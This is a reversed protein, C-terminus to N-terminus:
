RLYRLTPASLNRASRTGKGSSEPNCSLSRRANDGFPEPARFRAKALTAEPEEPLSVSAMATRTLAGGPATNGIADDTAQARRLAHLVENRRPGRSDTGAPISADAMILDVDLTSENSNRWLSMFKWIRCGPTWYWRKRQLQTSAPLAEAGGGAERVQWRLDALANRVRKRFSADASALVATRATSFVESTATTGMNLGGKSSLDQHSTEILRPHRHQIRRRSCYSDSASSNRGTADTSEEARPEQMRPAQPASLQHLRGRREHWRKPM